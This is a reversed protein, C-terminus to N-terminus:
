GRKIRGVLLGIGQLVLVPGFFYALFLPGNFLFEVEYQLGKTAGGDGASLTDFDLPDSPDAEMVNVSIDRTIFPLLIEQGVPDRSLSNWEVLTIVALAM